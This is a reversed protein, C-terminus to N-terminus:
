DDICIVCNVYLSTEIRGPYKVSFVFNHKGIKNFKGFRPLPSTTPLQVRYKSFVWFDWLPFTRIGHLNRFIILGRFNRLMQTAPERQNKKKTLNKIIKVFNSAGTFKFITKFAGFGVLNKFDCSNPVYLFTCPDYIYRFKYMGSTSGNDQLM